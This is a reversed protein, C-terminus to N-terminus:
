NENSFRSIKETEEFIVVRRDEHSPANDRADKTEKEADSSQEADFHRARNSM